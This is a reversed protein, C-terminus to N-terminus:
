STVLSNRPSGGGRVGKTMPTAPDTATPLDVVDRMRRSSSEWQGSVGRTWSTVM